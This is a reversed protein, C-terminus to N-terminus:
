TRVMFFLVDAFFFAPFPSMCNTVVKNFLILATMQFFYYLNFAFRVLNTRLTCVTRLRHGTRQDGEAEHPRECTETPRINDLLQV